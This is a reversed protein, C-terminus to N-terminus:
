ASARVERSGARARSAALVRQSFSAPRKLPKAIALSREAKRVRERLEDLENLQALLTASAHAYASIRKRLSSMRLGWSDLFYSARWGICASM